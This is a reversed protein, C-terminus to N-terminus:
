ADVSGDELESILLARKKGSLKNFIGLNNLLDSVELTNYTHLLNFISNFFQQLDNLNVGDLDMVIENKNKKDAIVLQMLSESEIGRLLEDEKVTIEIGSQMKHNIVFLEEATKKTYPILARKTSISYKDNIDYTLNM